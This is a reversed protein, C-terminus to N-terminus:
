AEKWVYGGIIKHRGNIAASINKPEIGTERGAQSISYFNGVVDGNITEQRCAKCRKTNLGNIADRKYRANNEGWTTIQLNDFTYSKYDNLRDCSPKLHKKYGGNVWVDFLIHFSPHSIVWDRFEVVSYDPPHHFRQKASLRQNYYIDNIVGVKTKRKKRMPERKM